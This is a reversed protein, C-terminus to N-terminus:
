FSRDLPTCMYEEVSLTKIEDRRKDLVNGFTLEYCKPYSAYGGHGYKEKIHAVAEKVVEHYPLDKNRHSKYQISRTVMEMVSVPKGRDAANMMESFECTFPLKRSARHEQCGAAVLKREQENLHEVILPHDTELIFDSSLDHHNKRSWAFLDHFYGVFLILKPDYSGKIAENIKLGTQFVDEFHPVRHGPDNLAYHSDFNSIILNRFKAIDM